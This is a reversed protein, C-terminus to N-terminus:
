QKVEIHIRGKDNYVVAGDKMRYGFFIEFKGEPLLGGYISFAHGEGFTIEENVDKLADLNFDSWPLIQSGMTFFTGSAESGPQIYKAVAFINGHKKHHKKDPKIKATIKISDGIRIVVKSKRPKGHVSVGGFFEASSMGTTGDPNVIGGAGLDAAGQAFALSGVNKKDLGRFARIQQGDLEFILIETGKADGVIIEDKGDQDVDGTTIEVGHKHDHKPDKRRKKDSFVFFRQKLEGSVSYVEVMGGKDATAVILEPVGDGDLDGAAVNAGYKEVKKNDKKRTNLSATGQFVDFTLIETGDAAYLAVENEKKLNGAFIEASGDGDIDVAVISLRTNKGLSDISVTSIESTAFNYITVQNDHKSKSTTLVEDAGDGDMDGAAVDGQRDVVLLGGVISGDLEYFVAKKDANVVIRDVGDGFFDGTAVSIDKGHTKTQIRRVLNGEVDRIVVENHHTENAIIIYGKDTMGPLNSASGALLRVYLNAGRAYGQNDGARAIVRVIKEEAINTPAVYNVQGFDDALAELSGPNEGDGRACWFLMPTGGDVSVETSLEVKEGAELTPMYVNRLIKVTPPTVGPVEVSEEYLNGICMEGAFAATPLAALSAVLALRGAQTLIKQKLM